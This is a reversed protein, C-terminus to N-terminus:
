AASGCELRRDRPWGVFQDLSGRFDDAGARRHMAGPWWEVRDGHASWVTCHAGAEDNRRVERAHAALDDLRRAAEDRGAKPQMRTLRM